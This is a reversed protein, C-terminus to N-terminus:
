RSLFWFLSLIITTSDRGSQVCVNRKKVCVNMESLRCLQILYRFGVAESHGLLFISECAFHRLPPLYPVKRQVCPAEKMWEFRPGLM